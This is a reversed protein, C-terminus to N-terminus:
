IYGRSMDKNFSQHSSSPRCTYTLIFTINFEIRDMFSGGTAGCHNLVKAVKYALKFM